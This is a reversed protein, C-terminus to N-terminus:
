AYLTQTCVLFVLHCRQSLTGSHKGKPPKYVAICVKFYFSFSTNVRSLLEFRVLSDSYVKKKPNKKGKKDSGTLRIPRVWKTHKYFVLVPQLDKAENRQFVKERTRGRPNNRRYVSLLHPGNSLRKVRM